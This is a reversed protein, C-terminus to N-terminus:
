DYIYNVYNEGYGFRSEVSLPDTTNLRYAYDEVGLEEFRKAIRDNYHYMISRVRRQIDM